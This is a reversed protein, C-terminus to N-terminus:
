IWLILHYLLFFVLEYEYVFRLITHQQALANNTYKNITYQVAHKRKSM